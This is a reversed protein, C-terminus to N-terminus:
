PSPESTLCKKIEDYQPKLWFHYMAVSLVIGFLFMWYLGSLLVYATATVQSGFVAAAYAVQFLTTKQM